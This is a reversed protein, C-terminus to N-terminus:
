RLRVHFGAPDQGFKRVLEGCRRVINQPDWQGELYLGTLLPKIFGFERGSPHKPTVHILYRKTMKGVTVPCNDKTLLEEQILWDATEALIDVWNSVSIENGRPDRFHLPRISAGKIPKEKGLEGLQVFTIWESADLSVPSSAEEVAGQPPGKPSHSRPLLGAERAEAELLRLVLDRANNFVLQGDIPQAELVIFEKKWADLEAEQKDKWEVFMIARLPENAPRLEYPLSLLHIEFREWVGVIDQLESKRDKIFSRLKDKREEAGGGVRRREEELLIKLFPDRHPSLADDDALMALEKLEETVPLQAQIHADYHCLDCVLDHDQGCMTKRSWREWVRWAGCRNCPEGFPAGCNDCQHSAAPSLCECSPCRVLLSEGPLTAGRAQLSWERYEEPLGHRLSNGALDLILCDGNDPKPRLGRGVMQLYLSLSMTPRTLVVCAADPLDFGETAVAVNVLVQLTGNGFSQVVRAREEPPTDSLMVAAPIGADKFVATLNHAHDKSVAYLVTQRGATHTQWFRLAGATMVDPHDRNARLIGSENYDGATVAGGRIIDEPKPMRVQTNCLWGEAQLQNVQPGCHLEEFLHDFREKELLRWPTATMGVVPGPWQNIARAWGDATAHHAEDIILLDDSGYSAWIQRKGTRRSVTQAMLIVVGNIITPANAQPTWRMNATAPVGAERLMAETQTALERRHTLWAAKRGDNLWRSLLEGAIRTKGGGTPLQMMVRADPSRALAVQVQALLDQQYLRLEIM